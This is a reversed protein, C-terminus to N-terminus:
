KGQAASVCVDAVHREFAAQRDGRHMRMEHFASGFGALSGAGLLALLIVRRPNFHRM